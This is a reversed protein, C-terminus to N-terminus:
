EKHPSPLYCNHESIVEGFLELKVVVTEVPGFETVQDINISLNHTILDIVEQETM